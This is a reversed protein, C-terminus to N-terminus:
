QTLIKVVTRRNRQYAEERKKVDKIQNIVNQSVEPTTEGYGVTKIRSADVGKNILYKKAIEARKLSLKLNYSAAGRQDAHGGLEITMRPNKLMQAALLDLEVQPVSNFAVHDLKSEDFGFYLNKMNFNTIVPNNDTNNDTVVNNDKNDTENNSDTNTITDNDTVNDSNNDNSTILEESKILVFDLNM